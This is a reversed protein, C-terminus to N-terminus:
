LPEKYRETLVILRQRIEEPMEVADPDYDRAKKFEKTVLEDHMAGMMGNLTRLYKSVGHHYPSPYLTKLNDYISVQRGIIKRMEHFEKSTIKERALNLRIFRIEDNVYKRFSEATDPQFRDIERTILAYPLKTLFLRVLVASRGVAAHQENKFADQLYGMIATMWHFTRPYRHREDFASYAFRLHKIKARLHKFAIQDQPSLSRHQYLKEIMGSLDKRGVREKWIQRCLRYCQTLQEQSYDLHIADPPEANLDIEDNVLMAAFRADCLEESFRPEDLTKRTTAPNAHRNLTM